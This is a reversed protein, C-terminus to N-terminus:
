ILRLLGEVRMKFINGGEAELTEFTSDCIGTPPCGNEKINM